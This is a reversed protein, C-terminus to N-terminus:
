RSKVIVIVEDHRDHQADSWIAQMNPNLGSVVEAWNHVLGRGSVNLVVGRVHVQVVTEAHAECSRHCLESIWRLFVTKIPPKVQRSSLAFSWVALLGITTIVHEGVNVGDRQFASDPIDEDVNVFTCERRLHNSWCGEGKLM